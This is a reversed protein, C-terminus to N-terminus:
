VIFAHNTCLSFHGKEQRSKTSIETEMEKITKLKIKGSYYNYYMFGLSEDHSCRPTTGSEYVRLGTKKDPSQDM